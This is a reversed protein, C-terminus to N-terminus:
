QDRGNELSRILGQVVRDTEALIDLLQSPVALACVEAAIELATDLEMISVRAYRPHRPFQETSGLGYGEAINLPISCAARRMQSTLGFQESAPMAQTHQYVIRTLAKGRQWAILDRFTRIPRDAM